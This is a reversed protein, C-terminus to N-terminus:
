AELEISDAAIGGAEDIRLLAVCVPLRFRRAGAAGPNLYIVGGREEISPKHSHGSVVVRFGEAAPDFMLEKLDHLMYIRTANAEITEHVPLEEAWAGKDVNGRIAIVSAIERLAALVQPSGVDGAHLILDVGALAQLAAPRMLGHTDSIVGISRADRYEVAQPPPANM